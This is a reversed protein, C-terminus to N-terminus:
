SIGADNMARCLSATYGLRAARKMLGAIDLHTAQVKLVGIVDNWLDDDHEKGDAIQALTLLICDEPSIIRVPSHGAIIPIDQAQHLADNAYSGLLPSRLDIHVLTAPDVAQLQTDHPKSAQQNSCTTMIPLALAIKPHYVGKETQMPMDTFAEITLVARPFGYLACALQGSIVYTYGEDAVAKIMTLLASQIDFPGPTWTPNDRLYRSFSDALDAHYQRVVFDARAQIANQHSEGTMYEQLNAYVLMESSARISAFRQAYSLTRIREIQLREIQPSTDLSQTKM